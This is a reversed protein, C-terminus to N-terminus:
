DLKPLDMKGQTLKIKKLKFPKSTVDMTSSTQAIESFKVLDEQTIVKSKMQNLKQKLLKNPDVPNLTFRESM